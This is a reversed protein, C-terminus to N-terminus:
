KFEVGFKAFNRYLLMVEVLVKGSSKTLIKYRETGSYILDSRSLTYGGSWFRERLKDLFTYPAIKWTNIELLHYGPQTPIHIFGFGVPWSNNVANVAFIEVHIKPWGQVGRTGLHVDIPHAFTSSEELRDLATVTQGESEGEVVKWSSGIQISWKCFLKPEEFEIAKVIQGIIHLEAM